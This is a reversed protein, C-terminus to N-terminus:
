LLKYATHHLNLNPANFFQIEFLVQWIHWNSIPTKEPNGIKRKYSLIEEKDM